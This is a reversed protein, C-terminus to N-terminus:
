AQNDGSSDADRAELLKLLLSVEARGSWSGLTYSLGGAALILLIAIALDFGTAFMVGIGCVFTLISATLIIVRTTRWGAHQERLWRVM